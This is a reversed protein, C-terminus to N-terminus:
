GTAVAVTDGAANKGDGTYQKVVVGAFSTNAITSNQVTIGNLVTAHTPPALPDPVTTDFVIGGTKKSGDWGTRFHIGPQNDSVSGSIWNVEAPRV